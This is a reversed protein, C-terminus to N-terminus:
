SPYHLFDLLLVGASLLRARILGFEVIGYSADNFTVVLFGAVYLLVISMAGLHAVIELRSKLDGQQM